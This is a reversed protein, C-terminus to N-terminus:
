RLTKMLERFRPNKKPLEERIYKRIKKFQYHINDIGSEEELEIYHERQAAHRLWLNSIKEGFEEYLEDRVIEVFEDIEPQYEDDIIDFGKMSDIDEMQKKRKLRNTTNQKFAVWFYAKIKKIDTVDDKYTNACQLLTDQFVDEDFEMKLKIINLKFSKKIDEYILSVQRLFEPNPIM